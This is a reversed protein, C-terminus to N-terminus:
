GAKRCGAPREVKGPATSHRDIVIWEDLNPDYLNQLGFHLLQRVHEPNDTDTYIDGAMLPLRIPVENDSDGLQRALQKPLEVVGVSRFHNVEAGGRDHLTERGAFSAGAFGENLEDLTFQGVHSCPLDPIGPWKYTLTYLEGDVILNTFHIKERPGGATMQMDGGNGHWTFPVDADIDPVIYRGTWTFNDPIRPREPGSAAKPDALSSVELDSQACGALM